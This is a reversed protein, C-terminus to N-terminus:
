TGPKAPIRVASKCRPCRGTKGAFEASVKFRAGCTCALRIFEDGHEKRVGLAKKAEVGAKEPIRIRGECKPCRALKGAYGVPMRLKMGCSCRFRIYGEEDRTPATGAVEGGAKTARRMGSETPAQAQTYDYLPGVGLWREAGSRTYDPSAQKDLGLLQLLSKEYSEVTVWKRKLMVVAVAVGSVFGGLHAYYGVQSLGALFIAGVLDFVFWLLIIWYSSISFRRVWYFFVWVCSVENEPFFVLFMGVVGNIAGSAGIAYGGCFILHSVGAMIGLGIYVPLYVISRVKACVANGFVWLFILNGALHIIGGHLWIHGLLGEIKWGNLVLKGAPGLSRLWREAVEAEWAERQAEDWQEVTQIDPLMIEGADRDETAKQFGFVLILLLVILWNAVPRRDYPVDAYYPIFM